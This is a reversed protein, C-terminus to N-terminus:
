KSNVADSILFYINGNRKNILVQLSGNVTKKIEGKVKYISINGSNSQITAVEGESLFIATSGEELVTRTGDKGGTTLRKGTNNEVIITTEAM